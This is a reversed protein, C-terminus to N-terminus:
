RTDFLLDCMVVEAHLHRESSSCSATHQVYSIQM